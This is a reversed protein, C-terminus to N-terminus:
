EILKNYLKMKGIPVHGYCLTGTACALLDDPYGKPYESTSTPSYGLGRVTRERTRDFVGKPTAKGSGNTAREQVDACSNQPANQAGAAGTM